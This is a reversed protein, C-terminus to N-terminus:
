GKLPEETKEGIVTDFKVKNMHYKFYQISEDLNIEKWLEYCFENNFLSEDPYLLRNIMNGYDNDYPKINLRYMVKDVM